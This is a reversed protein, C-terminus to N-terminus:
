LHDMLLLINRYGMCILILWRSMRRMIILVLGLFGIVLLIWGLLGDLELRMGGLGMTKGGRVRNEAKNQPALARIREDPYM